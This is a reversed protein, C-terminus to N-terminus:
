PTGARLNGYGVVGDLNGFTLDASKLVSAVEALYDKGDNSPLRPQPYDTGLMIDGVAAITFTDAPWAAATIFLGLILLALKALNAVTWVFSWLRWLPM